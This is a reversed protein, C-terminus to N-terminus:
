TEGEQETAPVFVVAYPRWENIEYEYRWHEYLWGGPVRTRRFDGNGADEWIPEGM